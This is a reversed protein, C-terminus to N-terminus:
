PAQARLPHAPCGHQAKANDKREQRHREYPDVDSEAADDVVGLLEVGRPPADARAQQGHVQDAVPGPRRDQQLGHRVPLEVADGAGVPVGDVVGDDHPEKCDNRQLELVARGLRV